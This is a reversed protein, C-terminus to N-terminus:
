KLVFHLIVALNGVSVAYLSRDGVTPARFVRHLLYDDADLLTSNSVYPFM